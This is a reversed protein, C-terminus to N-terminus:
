SVSSNKPEPIVPKNDNEHPDPTTTITIMKCLGNQKEYGVKCECKGEKSDKIKQTCTENPDQCDSPIKNIHCMTS